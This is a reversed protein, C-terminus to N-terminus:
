WQVSTCMYKCGVSELTYIHIYYIDLLVYINYKYPIEGGDACGYSCGKSARARSHGCTNARARADAAAGRV